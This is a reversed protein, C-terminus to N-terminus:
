DGGGGCGGCGGGGCGGGGCSSGCGSGCGGGSSTGGFANQPRQLSAHLDQYGGVMLANVGLLAVAMPAVAVGGVSISPTRAHSLKYWTAEGETTRRNLRSLRVALVIATIFLFVVLFIVPKGRSLGVLLKVAGMLLLVVFPAACWWRLRSLSAADLVLGDFALKSQIRDMTPAMSRRLDRLKVEDDQPIAKQVVSEIEHSPLEAGPVRKLYTGKNNDQRVGLAKRGYLAALAADVVRTGGGGLFAIEYPDRPEEVVRATGKRAFRELILSAMFAAVFGAAYFVLFEPGRLDFVSKEDACGPVMLLMTLVLGASLAVLPRVGRLVRPKPLLWHRSVDVWQQRKPVDKKEVPPWVDAPPEGFFRRYSALTTAYWEHFKAGEAFGGETPEHHLPRGLVGNCLDRWYSRTYLLHLHWAHDVADPPSVPHGACMALFLFRKYEKMVQQARAASWGNERALRSSFSLAVGSQDLPFAEIKEWLKQQEETM